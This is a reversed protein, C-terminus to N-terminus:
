SEPWGQYDRRQHLVGLIVIDSERVAYLLRYPDILLERVSADGREPVVRGREGMTKLSEASEFIRDLIRIAADV